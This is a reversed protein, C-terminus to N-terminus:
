ADRSPFLLTQDAMSNPLLIVNDNIMIDTIVLIKLIM